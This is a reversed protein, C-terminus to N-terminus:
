DSDDRGRDGDEYSNFEESSLTKKTGCKGKNQIDTSLDKFSKGTIEWVLTADETFQVDGKKTPAAATHDVNNFKLKKRPSNSKFCLDKTKM